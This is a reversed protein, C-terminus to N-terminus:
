SRRLRPDILLYALDVATNLLVYVAASFVVVALV